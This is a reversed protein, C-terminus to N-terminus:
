RRTITTSGPGTPLHKAAEAALKALAQKVNSPERQTASWSITVAIPQTIRTTAVTSGPVSAFQPVVLTESTKVSLYTAKTGSGPHGYKANWGTAILINSPTPGTPHPLYGWTCTDHAGNLYRHVPHGAANAVVSDAIGTCPPTWVASAPSPLGRALHHALADAAKSSGALALRMGFPTILLLLLAFAFLAKLRRVRSSPARLVPTRGKARGPASTTTARHVPGANGPRPCPPPISLFTPQTASPFSAAIRVTRSRLDDAGAPRPRSTLWGALRDVPVVFVGRVQTPEGFIASEAGALCLVPEIVTSASLEMQEALHRVKDVEQNMSYTRGNVRKTLGASSATVHGSWNKADILYNGAVSVVVHDLNTRSRGPNLLRDHLVHCHEGELPRLADAVRREGTAGAEWNMAMADMREAKLRADAALQRLARAKEGASGGEDISMAKGWRLELVISRFPVIKLPISLDSGHALCPSASM